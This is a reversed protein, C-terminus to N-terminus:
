GDHRALTFGQAHPTHAVAPGGRRFGAKEFARTSARNDEKVSAHVTEVKTSAFMEDVGARILAGGFGRRRALASVSVDIEAHGHDSWDFRIQGLATGADDLALFLATTPSALKAAFWSQHSEWTIPESSFAAARVTPDNAWEWILRCDRPEARRLTLQAARLRTVVRAAGDGDVLSRGLSSMTARRAEDKLLAETSVAIPRATLASPPGLNVSVGQEELRAAVDRQNDALVLVLSPLGMFALEWSTSGGAAIAVDAWAMLAPMETTDVVLSIRPGLRSAQAQLDELHPNSGGVVIRAEVDLGRLADLVMGTINGPDAGGLTVLVKRAIAPITREHGRYALFQQRLLVYRTGLMLRTRPERSAYLGADAHLNQNLVYDAYYHESHGYDDVVLAHLGAEKVTRQYDAGFHYGDAILWLRSVAPSVRQALRITEPADDASGPSASLHHVVFGQSTLRAELARGIESCAFMVQGKARRWHEALALCRMVHGTGIQANSDARFFLM